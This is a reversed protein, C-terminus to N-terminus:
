SHWLCALPLQPKVWVSLTLVEVAPTAIHTPYVMELLLWYPYVMKQFPIDMSPKGVVIQKKLIENFWQSSDGVLVGGAVGHNMGSAFSMTCGLQLTM